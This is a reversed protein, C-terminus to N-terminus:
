AGDKADKAASKGEDKADSAADAAKNAQGKAEEKHEEVNEADKKTIEALKDGGIASPVYNSAGHLGAMAIGGVAAAAGGVAGTATGILGKAKEKEQEAEKQKREREEQEKREEEEEKERASKAEKEYGDKEAQAQDRAKEAKSPGPTVASASNSARRVLKPLTKDGSKGAVFAYREDPDIRDAREQASASAKQDAGNKPCEGEIGLEKRIENYSTGLVEEGGAYNWHTTGDGRNIGQRAMVTKGRVYPDLDLHRIMVVKSQKDRKKGAGSDGDIWSQTLQEFEECADNYLKLKEKKEEENQMCKNEGEKPGGYYWEWDEDGGMGKPLHDGPIYKKLDAESKTFDIKNRVVPDLLPKLIAWIANFVMPAKHVLCKGLTEPYYKEFCEVIFKVCSWDMNSLGFGTMDFILTGQGLSEPTLVAKSTEMSFIVFRQLAEQSQDKPHHKAVHIYIVPRHAEDTGHTYSKGIDYQMRFGDEECLGEEGKEKISQVDQELRWKCAGAMMMFARQVDWKRARLFRLMLADPEEGRAFRWFEEHFKESGHQGLLGALAKKEAEAAQQDKAADDKAKKKFEEEGGDETGGADGDANKDAKVGAVENGEKVNLLMKWMEKLKEQQEDTVNGLFGEPIEVKHDPNMTEDAAGM